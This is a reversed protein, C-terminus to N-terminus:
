EGNMLGSQQGPPKWYADEKCLPQTIKGDLHRERYKTQWSGTAVYARDDPHICQQGAPAFSLIVNNPNLCSLYILTVIFECPLFMDPPPPYLISLNSVIESLM